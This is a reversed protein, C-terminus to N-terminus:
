SWSSCDRAVDMDVWIKVKLWLEKAMVCGFLLHDLSEVNYDCLPFGIDEIDMGRASFNLRTPLTNWAVRWIFVNIKRPLQKVWRTVLHSGPLISIDILARIDRVTYVGENSLSWVKRDVDKNLSINGLEIQMEQLLSSNRPGIPRVWEWTWEGNHVRDAISCDGNVDLHFLRHYKSCLPGNGKWNDKWFTSTLGNGVKVKKVNNKDM